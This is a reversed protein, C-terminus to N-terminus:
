GLLVRCLTSKGAGNRGILGVKQDDPLACSAAMSCSKTATASTPTKYNCFSQCPILPLKNAPIGRATTPSAAIALIVCCVVCLGAFWDGYM